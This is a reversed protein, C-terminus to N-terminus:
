EGDLGVEAGGGGGVLAAQAGTLVPRAGLELEAVAVQQAWQATAAM